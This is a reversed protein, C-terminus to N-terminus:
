EFMTVVLEKDSLGRHRLIFSEVTTPCGDEILFIYLM